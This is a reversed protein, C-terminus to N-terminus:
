HPLLGDRLLRRAVRRMHPRAAPLSMHIYDGPSSRLSFRVRDPTSSALDLFSIGVERLVIPFMERTEQQWGPQYAAEAILLPFIVSVVPVARPRCDSLLGELTGRALTERDPLPPLGRRSRRDM